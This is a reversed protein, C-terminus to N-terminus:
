DRTNTATAATAAHNDVIDTIHEAVMDAFMEMLQRVWRQPRLSNRGAVCLTGVVTGSASRIPVGCYATIGAAAAATSEPYDRAANDTAWPGHALMPICITEDFPIPPGPAILPEAHNHAYRVTQTANEWDITTIYAADYGTHAQLVALMPGIGDPASPAADLIARLTSSVTRQEDDIVALAAFRNTDGLLTPVKAAPIAPSFLYGQAHGCGHSAIAQRQREHEVGEAVVTLGLVHAMTTIAAIIPGTMENDIEDIFSRDIKLEDVPMNRLRALSSHGTGFDDIAARVGLRRLEELAVIAPGATADDILACETIEITLQDSRLGTDTLIANVSAVFRDAYRLQHPSVNVAVNIRRGCQGSFQMADSSARRLIHEGIAVILNAQEAVPIFADPAVLGRTPHRWRVLAELRDVSGTAVDVIPQYHVELEDREIVAQLDDLLDAREIEHDGMAEDFLAWQSRGAKKAVYMAMDANRLIDEASSAGVTTAIGVSATVHYRRGDLDHPASLAQVVREALAEAESRRGNPLIVAFEDGGLRAIEDDGRVVQGLREAVLRLLADGVGHGGTDNVVKFGDLDMVLLALNGETNALEDLRHRVFRRNLLGTLPDRLARRALESHSQEVDAAMANFAAAVERLETGGRVVTRASLDGAGLIGAAGRLDTLPDLASRLLVRRGLLLMLLIVTVSGAMAFLAWGYEERAAGLEAEADLLSEDRAVELHEVAELLTASLEGAHAEVRSGARPGADPGALAVRAQNWLAKAQEVAIGEETLSEGELAAFGEEVEGVALARRRREQPSPAPEPHSAEGEVFLVSQRLRELAMTEDSLEDYAEDFGAVLDGMVLGAMVGTGAVTVAICLLGLQVRFRITGM